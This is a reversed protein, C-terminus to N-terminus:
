NSGYFDHLENIIILIFYHSYRNRAPKGPCFGTASLDFRSIGRRLILAFAPNKASKGPYLRLPSFGPCLLVACIRMM